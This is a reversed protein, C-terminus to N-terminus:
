EHHHSEKQPGPRDLSDLGKRIEEKSLHYKVEIQELPLNEDGKAPKINLAQFVQNVPVDYRAAVEKPTMWKNIRKDGMQRTEPGPRRLEHFSHYVRVSQRLFLIGIIIVLCALIIIRGKREM